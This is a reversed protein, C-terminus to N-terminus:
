SSSGGDLRINTKVTNLLQDNTASSSIVVTLTDSIACYAHADIEISQVDTNLSPSSAIPSGNHNLVISLGSPPVDTCQARLYYPGAILVNFTFTGLGAVSQTSNAKINQSM